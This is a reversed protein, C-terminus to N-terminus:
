GNAQPRKTARQKIGTEPPERRRRKIPIKSYRKIIQFLDERDSADKYRKYAKQLEYATSRAIGFKEAAAAGHGKTEFAYKGITFVHNLHAELKKMRQNPVLPQMRHYTNPAGDLLDALGYLCSMAACPNDKQTREIWMRLYQTTPGLDGRHLALLAHLDPDLTPTGAKGLDTRYLALVEYLDPDLTPTAAEKTM